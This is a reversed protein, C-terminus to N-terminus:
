SLISEDEVKGTSPNRRPKDSVEGDNNRRPPEPVLHSPRPLLRVDELTPFLRSLEGTAVSVDGFRVQDGVCLTARMVRVNQENRRLWTGSASGTDHVHLCGDDALEIRAHLDAVTADDLVLDCASDRGITKSIASAM